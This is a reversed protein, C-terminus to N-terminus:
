NIININIIIIEELKKYKKLYIYDYKKTINM